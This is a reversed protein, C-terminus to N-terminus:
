FSISPQISIYGFTAVYVHDNAIGTHANLLCCGNTKFDFANSKVTTIMPPVPKQFHVPYAEYFGVSSQRSVGGALCLQEAQCLAKM